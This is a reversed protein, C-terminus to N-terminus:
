ATFPYFTIVLAVLNAASHTLIPILLNRQRSYGFTIVLGMLFGYLIQVPNLHYLGFLASAAVISLAPRSTKQNIFGYVLYRFIFEEITPTIICYLLFMVSLHPNVSFLGEAAEQYSPDEVISLRNFIVTLIAASAAGAATWLLYIYWRCKREFPSQPDLHTFFM